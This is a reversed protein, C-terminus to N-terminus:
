RPEGEEARPPTPLPQWHTAHWGLNLPDRFPPETRWEGHFWRMNAVRVGGIQSHVCWLDVLTGDQPAERIPRWGESDAPLADLRALAERLEPILAGDMARQKRAAEAIAELVETRTM